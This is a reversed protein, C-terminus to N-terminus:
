RLTLQSMRPRSQQGACASFNRTDPVNDESVQPNGLVTVGPTLVNVVKVNDIAWYQSWNGTYRFRVQANKVGAAEKSIDLRTTTTVDKVQDAVVKWETGNFFKLSHRAAMTPTLLVWMNKILSSSCKRSARRM